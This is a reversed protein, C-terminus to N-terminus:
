NFFKAATERNYTWRERANKRRVRTEDGNRRKSHRWERWERKQREDKLSRHVKGMSQADQPRLMRRGVLELPRQLPNRM